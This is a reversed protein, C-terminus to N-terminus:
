DLLFSPGSTVVHLPLYIQVGTVNVSYLVDPVLTRRTASQPTRSTLESARQEGVTQSRRQYRCSVDRDRTELRFLLFQAFRGSFSFLGVAATVAFVGVCTLHLHELGNIYVQNRRLVRGQDWSVFHKLWFLTIIKAGGM